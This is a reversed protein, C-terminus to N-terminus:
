FNNEIFSTNGNICVRMLPFIYSTNNSAINEPYIIFLCKVPNPYDKRGADNAVHMYTTIYDTMSVFSRLYGQSCFIGYWLIFFPNFPHSPPLAFLPSFSHFRRASSHVLFARVLHLIRWSPPLGRKRAKHERTSYLDLKFRYGIECNKVKANVNRMEKFMRCLEDFWKFREDNFM